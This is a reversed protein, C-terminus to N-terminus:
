SLPRLGGQRRAIFNAMEDIPNVVERDPNQRVQERYYAALLDIADETAIQGWKEAHKLDVTYPKGDFGDLESASRLALRVVLANGARVGMSEAAIEDVLSRWLNEPILRVNFLTLKRGAKVLGSWQGTDRAVGMRRKWEAKAEDTADLAPADLAPDESWVFSSERQLSPLKM